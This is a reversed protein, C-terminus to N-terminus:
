IPEAAICLNRGLDSDPRCHRRIGNPSAINVTDRWLDYAFKQAGIVGAVVAGSHAGIRLKIDVNHQARFEVFAAQM